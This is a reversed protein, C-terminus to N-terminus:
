ASVGRHVQMVTSRSTAPAKSGATVISAFSKNFSAVIARTHSDTAAVGPQQSAGVGACFVSAALVGLLQASRSFKV